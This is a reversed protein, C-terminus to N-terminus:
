KEQRDKPDKTIKKRGLRNKNLFFGGFANGPILLPSWRPLQAPRHVALSLLLGTNSSADSEERHGAHLFGFHSPEINGRILVAATVTGVAVEVVGVGGLLSSQFAM